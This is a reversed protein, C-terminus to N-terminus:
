YSVLSPSTKLQVEKIYDVVVKGSERIDACDVYRNHVSNTGLGMSRRPTIIFHVFCRDPEGSGGSLQKWLSYSHTLQVDEIETGEFTVETDEWFSKARYVVTGNSFVVIGQHWAGASSLSNYKILDTAHMWYMLSLGFFLVLFFLVLFVTGGTTSVHCGLVGIFNGFTVFLTVLAIKWFQRSYSYTSAFVRTGDPLLEGQAMLNGDLFGYNRSNDLEGEM